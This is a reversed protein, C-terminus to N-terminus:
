WYDKCSCSGSEFQHFRMRDRVVIERGFAHSVLKTLLHCDKCIRLNKTIRLRMGEPTRMLGFAIALMESHIGVGNEMWEEIEPAFGLSTARRIMEKIKDHIEEIEPHSNDDVVFKRVEGNLEICSWGPTTKMGQEKVMKRMKSVGNSDGISAYIGALLCCDGANYASMKILNEMVLEGFEVNKHIKCASLMARWLVSDFLFPSTKVFKIAEELRGARGLMDVVCCYHKADPQIAFKSSMLHFHKVGEDALGQHNCGMLLGLFSVDNPQIGAMLMQDFLTIAEQGCGYMSLGFLMSNWTFIDRKPMQDFVQRAQQLNGCKAYMDVLANGVFVNKKLFGNKVALKHVWVGLELAGLHACSSLLGVVTFEDLGFGVASMKRYVKIAEEHMGVRCYCAIISNWAVIDREPMEDFVKRADKVFGNDSYARSLNTSVILNSAFGSRFITGHVERSKEATAARGCAKLLFSFTAADPRCDASCFMSNYLSISFSPSPSVAFGRILSNWHPTAPIPLRSFLVLAYSLDGASSTACFSLLKATVAPRLDLGHIVAHAHIKHLRQMSNCGQLLSLVADEVRCM